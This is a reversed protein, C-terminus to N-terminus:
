RPYEGAVYAHLERITDEQASMVWNVLDGISVIGLVVNGDVVPLHRVRGSTMHRMCEDVTTSPTVVVGAERMIEEVLTDKSSKGSLIVKRAYDRESLVGRLAGGAIVLVAGINKDAMLQLAEYVSSSPSVSWVERPKKQLLCEVKDNLKM